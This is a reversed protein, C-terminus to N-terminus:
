HPIIFHFTDKICLRMHKLKTHITGWRSNPNRTLKFQLTRAYPTPITNAFPAQISYPSIKYNM